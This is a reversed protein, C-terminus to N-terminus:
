SNCRLRQDAMLMVAMISILSQTTVTMNIAASHQRLLTPIWATSGSTLCAGGLVCVGIFQGPVM